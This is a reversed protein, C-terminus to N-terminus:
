YVTQTHTHTHTHTHWAAGVYVYRVTNCKRRLTADETATQTSEVCCVPFPLFRDAIGPVILWTPCMTDNSLMHVCEGLTGSSQGKEGDIGVECDKEREKEMERGQRM